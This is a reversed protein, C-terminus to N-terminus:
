NMADAVAWSGGDICRLAPGSPQIFQRNANGSQQPRGGGSRHAVASAIFVTGVNPAFFGVRVQLCTVVQCFSAWSTAQTPLIYSSYLHKQFISVEICFPFSSSFM